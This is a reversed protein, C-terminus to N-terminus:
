NFKLSLTVLPFSAIILALSAWLRFTPGNNVNRGPQHMDVVIPAWAWALWHAAPARWNAKPTLSIPHWLLVPSSIAAGPLLAHLGLIKDGIRRSFGSGWTEQPGPEAVNRSFVCPCQRPHGVRATAEISAQTTLKEGAM